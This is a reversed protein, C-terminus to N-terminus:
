SFPGPIKNETMFGIAPPNSEPLAWKRKLNMCQLYFIDKEFFINGSILFAVYFPKL